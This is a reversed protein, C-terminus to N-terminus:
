HAQVASINWRYGALVMRATASFFRNSSDRYDLYWKTWSGMELWRTTMKPCTSKMECILTEQKRLATSLRNVLVMFDGEFLAALAEKAVLYIQHLLCWTRHVEFDIERELLAVVGGLRGTMVNEGDSGLGLVKNRWNTCLVDLIKVIINFQNIATNKEFMPVALLHLNLIEGDNHVRVRIWLYSTGRHTSGGFALSFALVSHLNLLRQITELNIAVLVRAFNSVQGDSISGIKHVQVIRKTSECVGSIQHFSLGLSLYEAVFTFQMPNKITVEYGLLVNDENFKPSFLSLARSQSVVSESDCNFFADGIISEVIGSSICFNLHADAKGFHAHVTNVFPPKNLFFDKKLDFSLSQYESWASSHQSDMHQPFLEARFPSTWAKVSLTEKRQRKEGPKEEKGFFACLQCAM